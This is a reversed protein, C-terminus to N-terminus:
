ALIKVITHQVTIFKNFSKMLWATEEKSSKASEESWIKLFVRYIVTSWLRRCECNNTTLAEIYAYIWAYTNQLSTLAQKKFDPLLINTWFFLIQKPHKFSSVSDIYQVVSVKANCTSLLQILKACLQRPSTMTLTSLAHWSNRHSLRGFVSGKAISVTTMEKWSYTLKIHLTVGLFRPTEVSFSTWSLSSKLIVYILTHKYVCRHTYICLWIYM